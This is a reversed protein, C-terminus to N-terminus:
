RRRRRQVILAVDDRGGDPVMVSLVEDVLQELDLDRADHSGIASAAADRLRGMGADLDEGRREVLGDTFLVLLEDEALVDEVEDRPEPGTVGLPTGHGGFLWRHGRPGVVLAPPHGGRAYTLSGTARDLCLCFVTAMAAGPLDAAFRDLASLTDAPGNGELLLTRSATRLQGMVAAAALGHGVCDGVVLATSDADLDVSDYWDGGV